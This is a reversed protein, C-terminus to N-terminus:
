APVISEWAKYAACLAPPRYDAVTKPNAVITSSLWVIPIAWYDDVVSRWLDAMAANYKQPDMLVKTDNYLKDFKDPIPSAELIGLKKSTAFISLNRLGTPSWNASTPMMDNSDFQQPEAFAKALVSASDSSRLEVNIGIQEWYGAIAQLMAPAAPNSSNPFSWVLIKKPNRTYGADALLQKAQNPDYPYSPLSDSWGAVGPGALFPGSSVVGTDGVGPISPFVAKVVAARDVALVLAKRVRVDNTAFGADYAQMWVAGAHTVNKVLYTKFGDKQAQTASDAGVDIVDAENTKLMNLRTAEDAAKAITLHGFKAVKSQDFYEPNRDYEITRGLTRGAFKMRGTGMPKEVFAKTKDEFNSGPLSNFYASPVVAIDAEVWGLLYPLTADPANLSIVVTYKDKAAVSAVSSRLSGSAQAAVGQRAFTELTFKVDAATFEDGNHFKAGQRLTLTLEDGAANAQWNSVLGDKSLQGNQDMAILPDYMPSIYPFMGGSGQWPATSENNFSGIAVTVKANPNGATAPTPATAAVTTSATAPKAPAGAAAATSTTGTASAVTPKTSSSVATAPATASSPAPPTASTCAALLTSVASASLGLSVLRGVFQRRTLSSSTFERASQDIQQRETM